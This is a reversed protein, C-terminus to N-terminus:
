TSRGMSHWKSLLKAVNEATWNPLRGKSRSQLDLLRASIEKMAAVDCCRLRDRNKADDLCSLGRERLLWMLAEVTSGPTRSHARSRTGHQKAEPPVPDSVAAMREAAWEVERVPRFGAVMDTQADQGISKVLGDRVADAQLKDVAEHLDLEVAGSQIARAECRAQFAVIPDIQREAAAASTAIM